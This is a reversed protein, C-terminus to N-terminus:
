DIEAAWATGTYRGQRYLVKIRDGVKVKDWRLKDTQVNCQRLSEIMQVKVNGQEDSM